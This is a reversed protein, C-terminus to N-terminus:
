QSNGVTQRAKLAAIRRAIAETRGRGAITQKGGPMDHVAIWWEEPEGDRVAKQRAVSCISEGTLAADISATYTPASYKRHKRATKNGLVLYLTVAGDDEPEFVWRWGKELLPLTDSFCPGSLRCEIEADLKRDPETAKELRAILEDM